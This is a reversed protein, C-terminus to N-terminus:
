LWVCKDSFTWLQSVINYGAPTPVSLVIQQGAYIMINSQGSINTGNFMIQPTPTVAQVTAVDTGNPSGGNCNGCIYSSGTYGPQVTVTAFENPTNAAVSVAPLTISMGNSTTTTTTPTVGPAAITVTPQSGFGSGTITLPFSSGAVWTPPSLSAVVAAPEGVAFTVSNSTGWINSITFQYNGMAQTSPITFNIGESTQGFTGVTASITSNFSPISTGTSDQLNAGTVTFSGSTGINASQLSIRTIQPFGYTVSIPEFNLPVCSGPTGSSPPAGTFKPGPSLSAASIAFAEPPDNGCDDDCPLPEPPPITGTPISSYYCGEVETSFSYTTGASPSVSVVSIASTANYDVPAAAIAVGNVYITGVSGVYDVDSFDMNDIELYAEVLGTPTVPHTNPLGPAGSSAEQQEGAGIFASVEVGPLLSGVYYGNTGDPRVPVEPLLSDPKVQALVVPM